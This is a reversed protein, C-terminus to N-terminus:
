SYNKGYFNLEFEKRQKELKELYKKNQRQTFPKKNTLLLTKVREIEGLLEPYNFLQM